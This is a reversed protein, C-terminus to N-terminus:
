FVIDKWWGVNKKYWELTKDLGEEFSFKPSWGLSLLKSANIKYRKDNFPRDPVFEIFSENKELKKILLKTLDINSIEYDTAINYVEGIKGKQFITDVATCFDEVYIYNRVNEGAGHLPIKKNQILSTIFRPIIKEPYQYPGYNNCGRVTIIPTKYTRQYAQVFMEAAAKSASYPNTPAFHDEEIFEGEFIEGYIEDTSIHIFRKIKLSKRVAELLIHTGLTNTKTFGLSGEISHDVHSEAAFHFVVEVDKLVYCLFNLDCVDGRIFNYNPKNEIDRLNELNGAYTLKDFNIFEHQPYKNVMFRTFNSGMFGAGGTILIKM